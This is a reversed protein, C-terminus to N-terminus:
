WPLMPDFPVDRLFGATTFFLGAAIYAIQTPAPADAKSSGGVNIRIIDSEIPSTSFQCTCLRRGPTGEWHEGFGPPYSSLVAKPFNAALGLEEIFQYPPVYATLAHVAM